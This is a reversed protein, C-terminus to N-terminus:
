KVEEVEVVFVGSHVPSQQLSKEFPKHIFM